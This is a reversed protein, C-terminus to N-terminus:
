KVKVADVAAAASRAPGGAYVAKWVGSRTATFKTSYFGKSNTRTTGKYTYAKAGNAKFYVQVPIGAAVRGDVRLAGKTTIKRGKVVPEPTANLTLNSPRKVYLFTNIRNTYQAAERFPQVMGYATVTYRGATYKGCIPASGRYTATSGVQALYRFDRFGGSVPPGSIDVVVTSVEFPGDVETPLPASLVATFIANTCGAKSGLVFVNRSVTFSNLTIDLEAAQAPAGAVLVGAAPVAALLAALTRTRMATM